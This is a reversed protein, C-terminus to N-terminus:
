SLTTLSRRTYIYIIMYVIYVGFKPNLIVRKSQAARYGAVRCSSTNKRCVVMLLTTYPLEAQLVRFLYGPELYDLSVTLQLVPKVM